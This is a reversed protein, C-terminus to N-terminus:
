YFMGRLCLIQLGKEALVWVLIKKERKWLICADKQINSPVIKFFFEMAM